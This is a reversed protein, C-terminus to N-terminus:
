EEEFDPFCLKVDEVSNMLVWCVSNEDNRWDSVDGNYENAIINGNETYCFASCKLNSDFEKVWDKAFGVAGVAVAYYKGSM